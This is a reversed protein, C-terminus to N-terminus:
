RNLLRAVQEVTLNAVPLDHGLTDKNPTFGNGDVDLFIPNHYATPHMKGQPSTGFGGALTSKEGIAVVILHADDTIQLPITRDFKVTGSGFWDPHSERTFNLEPIQRGNLLVQVRDIDLWDTCQARVTLQITKQQVALDDGPGAKKDGSTVGVQLFPGSTLYGRGAKAARTVERWDIRAPDDTSSPLYVRWGGVGNGYVTHADSVATGIMRHGQNLLQLWIFERIYKVRRVLGTGPVQDIRYPARSLIGSDVEFGCDTYNETEWADVYQGLGVYGGDILGDRNKDVFCQELNPHNVQVWRDPDGKLFERATIATIRPDPNWKPAGNDQRGFEPTFPFSNLHETNGTLEIGPVTSLFDGLGLAKIHPTWNFFRNHETTPAFEIHEAALNILRDDTGCTNDGSPTSHNHFDSSIWGATDVVHALSGAFPVTQGEALTVDKELHSFEVGRVVSVRYRGPPLPVRFTGSESHYQDVCGHARQQPGLNLVKKAEAPPLPVGAADLPTFMAKCPMPKGDPGTIAFEVASQPGLAVAEVPANVAATLTKSVPRRGGDQVDIELPGAPVLLAVEGNADPYAPVKAQGGLPVLVVATSPVGDPATVKLKFPVLPAPPDAKEAALGVAEAPSTGVALFRTLVKEEGPKLSVDAPVVNVAYACRASPDVADAWRVTATANTNIFNTWKDETPLTQVITSENKLTTTVRVGRWGDALEYLHRRAVGGNLVSTVVVEVAATGNSGDAVVRVWSVRSKQGCPAFVTIQDNDGGAALDYLCGPTIGDAGYFTSMNARRDDAMQAIVATVRDNRLIFDGVIGDAEKGKPLSDSGRSGVEFALPAGTLTAPSGALGGAFAVAVFLHSRIDSM